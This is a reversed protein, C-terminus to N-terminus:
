SLLDTGSYGSAERGIKWTKSVVHRGRVIDRSRSSIRRNQALSPGDHQNLPTGQGDVVPHGDHGHDGEQPQEQQKPEGSSPCARAPRSRGTPEGFDTIAPNKMRAM